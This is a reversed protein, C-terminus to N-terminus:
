KDSKHMNHPGILSFYLKIWNQSQLAPDKQQNTNCLKFTITCSGHISAYILFNRLRSVNKFVYSHM